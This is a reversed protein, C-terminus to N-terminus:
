LVQRTRQYNVGVILDQPVRTEYQAIRGGGHGKGLCVCECETGRAQQCQETCLGVKAFDRFVEVAGFDEKLAAVVAAVYDHGNGKKAFFFFPKLYAVGGLSRNGHLDYYDAIASRLAKRNGPAYPLLTVAKTSVANLPVWVAPRMTFAPSFGPRKFYDNLVLM